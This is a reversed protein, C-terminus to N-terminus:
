IELLYNYDLQNTTEYSDRTTLCRPKKLCLKKNHHEGQEWQKLVLLTVGNANEKWIKSDVILQMEKLSQLDQYNPQRQAKRIFTKM